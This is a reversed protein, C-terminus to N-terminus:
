VVATTAAVFTAVCGASSGIGDDLPVGYVGSVGDCPTLMDACSM